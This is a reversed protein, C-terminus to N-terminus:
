MEATSHIAGHIIVTEEGILSYLIRLKTIGKMVFKDVTVLISRSRMQVLGM